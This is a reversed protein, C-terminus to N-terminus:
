GHRVLRWSRHQKPIAGLRKLIQRAVQLRRSVSIPLKSGSVLLEGVLRFAALRDLRDRLACGLRVSRGRIFPLASPAGHPSMAGAGVPLPNGFTDIDSRRDAVVTAIVPQIVLPQIGQGGAMRPQRDVGSDGALCCGANRHLAVRIAARIGAPQNFERSRRSRPSRHSLTCEHRSQRRFLSSQSHFLSAARTGRMLPAAQIPPERLMSIYKLSMIARHRVRKSKQGRDLRQM